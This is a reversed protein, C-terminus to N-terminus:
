PAGDQRIGSKSQLGGGALNQEAVCKNRADASKSLRCSFVLLLSYYFDRAQFRRKSPLETYLFDLLFLFPGKVVHMEM